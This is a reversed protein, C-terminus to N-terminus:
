GSGIIHIGACHKDSFKIFKRLRFITFASHLLNNSNDPSDDHTTDINLINQVDNLTKNSNTEKLNEPFGFIKCLSEQIEICDDESKCRIEGDYLFNALHELEQKNCPCLIELADCCHYRASSLIERLFKTQCLIEKHIKIEHGDQSYLICNSSRNKLYLDLCDEIKAVNENNTLCLSGM